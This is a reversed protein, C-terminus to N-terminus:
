LSFPSSRSFRRCSSGCMGAPAFSYQDVLKHLPPKMAFGGKKRWNVGVKRWVIYPKNKIVEMACKVVSFVQEKQREKKKELHAIVEWLM